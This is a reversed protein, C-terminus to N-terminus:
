NPRNQERARKKYKIGHTYIFGDKIFYNMFSPIIEM